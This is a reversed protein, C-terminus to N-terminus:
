IYIYRERKIKQLQSVSKKDKCSSFKAVITRPTNRENSKNGVRHASDTNIGELELVDPIMQQLMEETQQWTENEIEKLSDVRLNNDQDTEM